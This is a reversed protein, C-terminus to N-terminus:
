TLPRGKSVPVSRVYAIVTELTPGSAAASTETVSVSGALTWNVLTLGLKPQTQVVGATPEDPVTLHWRAVRALPEWAVMWSTTFTTAGPPLVTVFVAVTALGHVSGSVLSLEAVTVVLVNPRRHHALRADDGRAPGPDGFGPGARRRQPGAGSCWGTALAGM